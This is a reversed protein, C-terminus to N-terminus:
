THMYMLQKPSARCEGHCGNTFEATVRTAEALRSEHTPMFWYNTGNPALVFPVLEHGVVLCTM